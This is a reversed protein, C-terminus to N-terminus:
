GRESGHPLLWQRQCLYGQGNATMLGGDVMISNGCIRRFWLQQRGVEFTLMREREPIRSRFVRELVKYAGQYWDRTIWLSSYHM